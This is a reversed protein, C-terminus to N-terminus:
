VRPKSLDGHCSQGGDHRKCLGTGTWHVLTSFLYQPDVIHDVGTLFSLCSFQILLFVRSATDTSPCGAISTSTPVAALYPTRRRRFM